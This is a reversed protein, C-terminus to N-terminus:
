KKIFCFSFNLFSCTKEDENLADRGGRRGGSGIYEDYWDKFNLYGIFHLNYKDCENKLEELDVMYEYSEGKAFYHDEGMEGLQMSYAAGYIEDSDPDAVKISCSKNKFAGKAGSGTIKRIISGDLTTGIFMGGKMLYKSVTELFIGLTTKSKFFYHLAFQCSALGFREEGIIDDLNNYVSLDMVYYNYSANYGSHKFRDKAGDKGNISEDSIDFGVTKRIGVSYWKHMDGGKGVALELLSINKINNEKLYKVSEQFLRSKVWNHFRRINHISSTPPPSSSSPVSSSASM